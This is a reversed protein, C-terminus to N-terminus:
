ARKELLADVAAPSADVLAAARSPEAAEADIVAAVGRLRVIRRLEEDSKAAPVTSPPSGMAAERNYGARVVDRALTPLWVAPDEYEVPPASSAEAAAEPEAESSEGAEEGAGEAPPDPALDLLRATLGLAASLLQGLDGESAGGAEYVTGVDLAIERLRRVAVALALHGEVTTTPAGADDAAVAATLLEGELQGTMRVVVNVGREVPDAVPLTDLATALAAPDDLTGGDGFRDAYRRASRAFREDGPTALLDDVLVAPEPLSLARTAGQLTARLPTTAEGLLATPAPPDDEFAPPSPEADPAEPPDSDDM